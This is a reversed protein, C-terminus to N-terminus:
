LSPVLPKERGGLKLAKIVKELQAEFKAIDKDWGNFDAALRKRLQARKGSEYEPDSMYGDLDLPIISYVKKGREKTMEQEKQLANDIEEEVWWSTLAAKSACLLVKDCKRIGDAIADHLDDGPLIQHDDLWCRIGRGQLAEFLRRAFAKDESSHSIFCSYFQMSDNGLSPLYKIFADTLGCGRLFVEPLPWSRAISQLDLASPGAYLCTELGKTGELNTDVFSVGFLGAGTLNAGKLNAGHFDTEWLIAERLEAKTLNAWRFNTNKLYADPLLAEHLKALYLDANSLDAKSLNAWNLNASKLNAEHLDATSLNAERLDAKSLNVKVKPYSERWENWCDVGSKLIALQKQNAM